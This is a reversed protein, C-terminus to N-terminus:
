VVLGAIGAVVNNVAVVVVGVINHAWCSNSGGGADV